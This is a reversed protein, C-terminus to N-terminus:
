PTVAGGVTGIEDVVADIIGGLQFTKSVGGTDPNILPRTFPRETAVIRLPANFWRADYGRILARAHAAEHPDKADACAMLAAELGQRHYREVAAHIVKGFWLPKSEEGVRRRRLEYAYYYKRPCARWTNMASASLVPLHTKGDDRPEGLGQERTQYLSDNGINAGEACVAWYDCASGYMVCAGVYRPWRERNRAQRILDAMQWVDAEHEAIEADTRVIVGRTYYRDPEAAIQEVIRREYADPAEAGKALPRLGTKRIVDYVVGAVDEGMARAAAIYMSVQNDLTLKKWYVSGPSCDESTTKLELLYRM